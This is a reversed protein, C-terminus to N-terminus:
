TFLPFTVGEKKIEDFKTFTLLRGIIFYISFLELTM